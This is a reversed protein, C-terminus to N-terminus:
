KSWESSDFSSVGMLRDYRGGYPRFYVLITYQNITRFDNGEVGEEDAEGTNKNVVQYVYNYYGQKVFAEAWYANAEPHYTMKFKPKLQWDTLEGFLYVDENELEANQTLSFLAWGYDAQLLSQNPNQNEISFRGNLDSRYTVASTARSRDTELTIEYQDNKNVLISHVRDTRNNFSRIDFYRFERSAPFVVKDQYDFVMEDSRTTMPTVPGIANDWRGNQLLMAHVDTLPNIVRTGEFNVTFDMEHHTEQKSVKAPRVFDVNIRWIPEVVCFRRELVPTKDGDEKYVRLLYNGSKTWRINSNPLQVVYHTYSTRTNFSSAFSLVRDDTYGSLYENDELASPQWNLDCHIITYEYEQTEDGLHDFELLLSGTPANIQLFPLSLPSGAPYLQVSAIDEDFIRNENRPNLNQAFIFVPFCSLLLFLPRM